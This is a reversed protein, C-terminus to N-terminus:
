KCRWEGRNHQRYGAAVLTARAILDCLRDLATLDADLARLREQQARLAAREAERETREAADTRAAVEAVRGTGVYERVVRGNVKRSRTYYRGRGRRGEWGMTNGGTCKGRERCRQGRM